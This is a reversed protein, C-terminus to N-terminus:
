RVNIANANQNNGTVNNVVLARLRGQADGAVRLGAGTQDLVRLVGPEPTESHVGSDSFAGHATIGDMEEQTLPEMAAAMFVLTLTTLALFVVPFAILKM